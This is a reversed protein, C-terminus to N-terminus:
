INQLIIKENKGLPVWNDFPELCIKGVPWDHHTSKLVTCEKANMFIAYVISGGVNKAALIPFEIKKGDVKLKAEVM